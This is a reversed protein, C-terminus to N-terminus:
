QLFVTSIENMWLGLGLNPNVCSDDDTGKENAWDSGELVRRAKDVFTLLHSILWLRVEIDDLYNENERM